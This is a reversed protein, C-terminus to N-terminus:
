RIKWLEMKAFINGTVPQGNGFQNNPYGFGFGNAGRAAAVQLLLLKHTSDAVVFRGKIRSYDQCYPGGSDTHSNSTAGVLVEDTDDNFLLGVVSETEMFPLMADIYYTGEPLSFVNGGGGATVGSGSALTVGIEDIVQTNLDRLRWYFSSGGLVTNTYQVLSVNSNYAYFDGSLTASPKHDVIQAYPCPTGPGGSNTYNTFTTDIIVSASSVGGVVLPVSVGPTTVDPTFNLEVTGGSTNYTLGTTELVTSRM